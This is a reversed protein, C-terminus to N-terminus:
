NEFTGCEFAVTEDNVNIVSTSTLRFGAPTVNGLAIPALGYQGGIFGVSGSAPADNLTVENASAGQGGTLAVISYRRGRGQANGILIESGEGIYTGTANGNFNGTRNSTSGLTWTDITVTAGDGGGNPGLSPGYRYDEDDWGLYVGEGYTVSTQNSSTLADGGYYPVIGTSTQPAGAVDAGSYLLGYLMDTTRAMGWNWMLRSEDTDEANQLVVWDPVFGVCAYLAAGTGNFIGGVRRM